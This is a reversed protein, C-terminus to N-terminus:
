EHTTADSAAAAAEARDGADLADVVDLRQLVRRKGQEDKVTEQILTRGKQQGLGAAVSAAVLDFPQTETRDVLQILYWGVSTRVPATAVQGPELSRAADYYSDEYRGIGRSFWETLGGDGATLRDKSQTRALQEM